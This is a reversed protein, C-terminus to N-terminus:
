ATGLATAPDTEFQSVQDLVVLQHCPHRQAPRQVGFALREGFQPHSRLHTRM